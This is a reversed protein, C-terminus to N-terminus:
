RCRMATVICLGWGCKNQLTRLAAASIRLRGAGGCLLSITYVSVCSAGIAKWLSCWWLWWWPLMWCRAASTCMSYPKHASKGTYATERSLM